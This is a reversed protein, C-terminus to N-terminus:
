GSMIVKAVRDVLMHGDRAHLHGLPAFVLEDSGYQVEDVKPQPLHVSACLEKSVAFHVTLLCFLLIIGYKIGTHLPDFLVIAIILDVM